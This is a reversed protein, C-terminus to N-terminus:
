VSYFTLHVWSVTKHCQEYRLSGRSGCSVFPSCMHGCAAADKYRQNM